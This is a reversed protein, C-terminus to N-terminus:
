SIADRDIHRRARWYLIAAVLGLLTAFIQAWRLGEGIGLHRGVALYDSLAGVLVPGLGLGVLNTVLLYISVATARTHPKSVTQFVAFLPGYTMGYLLAPLALSFLALPTSDVVMAAVYAPVAVANCIAVQTAMGRASTRVHRDALRGGVYAGIMGSVGGIIGIALGLLGSPQLGFPAALELLGVAHNRFFFSALFSAHGYAVVGQFGSAVAFLVFTPSNRLERLAVKFSTAPETAKSVRAGRARPDTLTAAVLGGVLLGPVGAVLFGARWGLADAILGGIAMGLLAGIPAGMSYVGLASARRERPVIDSILSHAAPTCGAEGVGVGIRATVLQLFNQALGCVATFASWTLVSASIITVRNGREALRAIPIGLTAYFVGFALGTMAGLQWDHLRLDHKIPEALMNVIQRDLNHLVYVILLVGITYRPYHGAPDGHQASSATAESSENAM